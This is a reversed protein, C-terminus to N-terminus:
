AAVDATKLKREVATMAEAHSLCEGARLQRRRELLEDLPITLEGAKANNVMDMELPREKAKKKQARLMPETQYVVDDLLERLEVRSYQRCVYSLIEIEVPKFTQPVQRPGPTYLFGSKGSPYTVPAEVLVGGDTLRHIWASLRPDYPGFFHWIYKAGSIPRGLFRRAEYDALYLLKMLRTRGLNGDRGCRNVFFAVLEEERSLKIDAMTRRRRLEPKLYRRARM